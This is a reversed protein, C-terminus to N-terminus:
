NFVDGGGDDGLRVMPQQEVPAIDALGAGRMAVAASQSGVAAVIGFLMFGCIFIASESPMYHRVIGNHAYARAVIHRLPLLINIFIILAQNIIIM